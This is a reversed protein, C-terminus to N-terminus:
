SSTTPLWVRQYSSVHVMINTAVLPHEKQSDDTEYEKAPRRGSAM